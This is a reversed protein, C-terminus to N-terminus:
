KPLVIVNNMEPQLYIPDGITFDSHESEVQIKHSGAENEIVLVEMRGKFFKDLVKGRLAGNTKSLALNESRIMLKDGQIDLKGFPTNPGELIICSGFFQATYADNPQRYIEQPSGTQLLQGAQLIAVRDAMMFSDIPHHTVLVTTIGFEKILQHIETRVKEHTLEDLSSFPEDLLLIDPEAALTRALAVRQQQGGSLEHPERKELGSLGTLQIVERVKLDSPAGFAINDRVSLHPFLALNQHVMGVKRKNPPASTIDRNRLLIRGSNVPELGSLIRLITTKGCGSEGVLALIEGEEVELNLNPIVEIKGFSKHINSLQLLSM